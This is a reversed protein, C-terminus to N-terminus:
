YLISSVESCWVMKWSMQFSLQRKLMFRSRLCFFDALFLLPGLISIQVSKESFSANNILNLYGLQVKDLSIREYESIEPLNTECEPFFSPDDQISQVGFHEVLEDHTIRSQQLVTVM